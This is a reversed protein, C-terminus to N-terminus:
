MSPSKPPNALKHILATRAEQALREAEAENKAYEIQQIKHQEEEDLLTVSMNQQDEEGKESATEQTQGQNSKPRGRTTRIKAIVKLGEGELRFDWGPPAKEQLKLCEQFALRNADRIGKPLQPKVNYHGNLKAVRLVAQADEAKFFVVAMPRPNKPNGKYFPSETHRRVYKVNNMARNDLNYVMQVKPNGDLAEKFFAKLEAVDHRKREEPDESELMPLGLVTLERKAEEAERAHRHSVSLDIKNGSATNPDYPKYNYANSQSQGLREDLKAEIMEGISDKITSCEKAIEEVKQELEAQVETIRKETSDTISDMKKYLGTTSNHILIALDENSLPAKKTEGEPTLFEKDKDVGYGDDDDESGNGDWENTSATPKGSSATSNEIELRQRQFDNQKQLQEVKSQESSKANESLDPDNEDPMKNARKAQKKHSTSGEATDNQSIKRKSASRTERKPISNDRKPKADGKVRLKETERKASLTKSRIIKRETDPEGNKLFSGEFASDNSM